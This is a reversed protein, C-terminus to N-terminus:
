STIGRNDRFQRPTSGTYKKFVKTFYSQDNFHLRTAIDSLTIGPVEILRKAEEIRERQIYDSIAIGSEKKFLQSLYSGHLGAVEALLPLSLEEYLHNFIYNQCLAVTRSLKARRNNRVHDAFDCLAALQASEVSPVDKLEEIHQIHFDSLTYAIEWFLGGEIAARTGLTISAIALNKKSRLHSKKSLLGYSEESFSAQVRLLEEINGNKVHQMLNRELTPEHHLWTNERRYSISLDPSESTSQKNELTCNDLLLETISLTRGTILSFLLMAAHYLRMRSLVTLSGYYELWPGQQNVSINNDRFVTAANSEIIPAYLSPGMVITDTEGFERPLRYIIFNELYNTSRILPHATDTATGTHDEPDADDAYDAIEALMSPTDKSSPRREFTLPLETIIRASSDLAFVPIQYAEYLLRCIYQVGESNNFSGTM